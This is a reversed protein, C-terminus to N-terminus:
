EVETNFPGYCYDVKESPMRWNGYVSTLFGEPDSPLYVTLNNAFTSKRTGAFVDAPFHYRFVKQPNADSNTIAWGDRHSRVIDIDIFLCGHRPHVLSLKQENEIRVTFGRRKMRERFEPLRTAEGEIVGLDIDHDGKIFERNRVCGLLTGWLLFPKIGLASAELLALRLFREGNISLDLARFRYPVQPSKLFRALRPFTIRPVISTRLRRPTSLEAHCRALDQATDIEWWHMGATFVPWLGSGRMLVDYADNPFGETARASVLQTIRDLFAASDESGVRLLQASEGVSQEPSIQRSYRIVRGEATQVQYEGSRYLSSADVLCANDRPASIIRRILDAPYLTDGNQLLFARGRLSPAAVGLSAISGTAEYQENVIVRCRTGVHRVVSDSCFGAVVTVDDIGADALADLQYDILRRGNIPLLCKPTKATLASLRTGRGAALLVASRPATANVRGNSAQTMRTRRRVRDSPHSQASCKRASYAPLTCRRGRWCGVGNYSNIRRDSACDSVLRKQEGGVCPPFEAAACGPLLDAFLLMPLRKLGKIM